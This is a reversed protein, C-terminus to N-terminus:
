LVRRGVGRARVVTSRTDAITYVTHTGVDGSASPTDGGVFAGGAFCVRTNSPKGSPVSVAHNVDDGGAAVGVFFVIAGGPVGTFKVSESVSDAESDSSRTTTFLLARFGRSTM